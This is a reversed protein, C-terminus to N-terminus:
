DKISTYKNQVLIALYGGLGAQALDIFKSNTGPHKLCITLSGLILVLVIISTTNNQIIPNLVKM